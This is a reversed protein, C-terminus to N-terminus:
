RLDCYYLESINLLMFFIFRLPHPENLSEITSSLPNSGRVEASGARREGLQALAGPLSTISKLAIECPRLTPQKYAM